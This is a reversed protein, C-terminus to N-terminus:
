ETRGLLSEGNDKFKKMETKWPEWVSGYKRLLRTLEMQQEKQLSMHFIDSNNKEDCRALLRPLPLPYPCSHPVGVLNLPEEGGYVDSFLEKLEHRKLSEAHKFARM